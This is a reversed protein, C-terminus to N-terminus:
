VHARGIENTSGVDEIRFPEGVHLLAHMRSISPDDLEIAARPGRGLVVKGREPLAFTTVQNPGVVSLVLQRAREPVRVGTVTDPTTFERERDTM